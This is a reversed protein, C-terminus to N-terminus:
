SNKSMNNKEKQALSILVEKDHFETATKSLLTRLIQFIQSIIRIFIPLYFGYPPSDFCQLLIVIGFLVLHYAFDM